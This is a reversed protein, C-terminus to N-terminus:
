RSEGKSGEDLAPLAKPSAASWSPNGSTYLYFSGGLAIAGGIELMLAPAGLQSRQVLADAEARPHPQAKLEKSASSAVGAAILGLLIAGAGAGGTAMAPIARHNTSLSEELKAAPSSTADAELARRAVYLAEGPKSPALSEAYKM